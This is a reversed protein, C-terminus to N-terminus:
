AAERHDQLFEEQLWFIEDLMADFVDPASNRYNQGFRSVIFAQHENAVEQPIQERYVTIYGHWRERQKDIRSLRDITKQTPAGYLVVTETSLRNLGNITFIHKAGGKKSVTEIHTM